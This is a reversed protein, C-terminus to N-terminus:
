NQLTSLMAGAPNGYSADPLLEEHGRRTGTPQLRRYHCHDAIRSQQHVQKQLAALEVTEVM